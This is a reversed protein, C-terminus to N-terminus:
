REALADIAEIVKRGLNKAEQEALIRGNYAIKECHDPNAMCWDLQTSLNSLDSAIPIIHVYPKLKHHYWQQRPSDVKLICSGSLLKWLLGWSNVNGDIEILYRYLGFMWAPCYAAMLNEEILHQRIQETAESDRGQVVATMRADLLEPMELSLCCLKYRQNKTLRTLTLASMGTSAGRWFALPQRQKWPPLRQDLFEKRLREYGNSGLAYPDPILTERSGARADFQLCNNRDSEEDHLQIRFKNIAQNSQMRWAAVSAVHLLPLLRGPM